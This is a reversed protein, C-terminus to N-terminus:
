KKPLTFIFMSGEGPKSRVDITGKHMDIISKAITLGLGTGKVSRTMTSDVQHFKDFIKKLNQVSLGM